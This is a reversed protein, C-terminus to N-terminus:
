QNQAREFNETKRAMMEEFYPSKAATASHYGDRADM